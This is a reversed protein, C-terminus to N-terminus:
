KTNDADLIELNYYSKKEAPMWIIELNPLEIGEM